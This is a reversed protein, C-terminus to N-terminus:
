RVSAFYSAVTELREATTKLETAEHDSSDIEGDPADEVPLRLKSATPNRIM